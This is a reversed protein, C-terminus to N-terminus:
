CIAIAVFLYLQYSKVHSTDVKLKLGKKKLRSGKELVAVPPLVGRRRRHRMALLDGGNLTSGIPHVSITSRFFKILFSPM